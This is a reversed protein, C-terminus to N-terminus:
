APTHPLALTVWSCHNTAQKTCCDWIGGPHKYCLLGQMMRPEFRTGRSMYIWVTLWINQRCTLEKKKCKRTIKNYPHSVQDRV